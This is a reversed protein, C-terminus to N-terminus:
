AGQARVIFSNFAQGTAARASYGIGAAATLGTMPLSVTGGSYTGSYVPAAYYDQANMINIPTGSAVAGSLDVDVTALNEWNYVFVNARNTEYANARVVVLNATPNSGTFYTNTPFDSAVSNDLPGILTNGTIAIQGWTAANYPATFCAAVGSAGAYYNNLVSVSTLDNSNYGFTNDAHWSYNNEIVTGTMRFDSAGGFLSEKLANLNGVVHSGLFSSASSGYAQIANDGIGDYLINEALTKGNGTIENCYLGHGHPDLLPSFWGNHYILNGYFEANQASDYSGIGQGTDHIVCNIVKSNPASFSFGFGRMDTPNSGEEASSRITNSNMVELDRFILWAGAAQADVTPDHNGSVAPNYNGDITAREGPYGRFTILNGASGNLACTFQGTYTGNRLWVTDGPQVTAAPYGGALAVALTWPDAFTGAGTASGAPAAFFGALSGGQRGFIKGLWNGM